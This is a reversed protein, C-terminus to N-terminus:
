CIAARPFSACSPHYPYRLLLLLLLLLYPYRIQGTLPRVQKLTGSWRKAQEVEEGHGLEGVRARLEQAVVELGPDAAPSFAALASAADLAMWGVWEWETARWARAAAPVLTGVKYGFASAQSDALARDMEWKNM